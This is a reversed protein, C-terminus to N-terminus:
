RAYLWDRHVVFTGDARTVEAFLEYHADAEDPLTITDTVTGDAPVDVALIEVTEVLTRDAEIRDLHYVVSAPADEPPLTLTFTDGAAALVGGDTVTWGEAVALADISDPIERPPLGAFPDEGSGCATLALLTAAVLLGTRM